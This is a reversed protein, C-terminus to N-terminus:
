AGWGIADLVRYLVGGVFFAIPFVTATTAVAIRTGRERAIMLVSAVCPIFLTITVMSVVVQQATLLGDAHMVFLGTAGFDRRLFGLVFAASAAAPLGLWGTVLPEGADIIADLGGVRDLVFLVATGLVFLPIVERLYWELRTLTKTLVNSMVPVRLPPMEIMLTSREGPMLRAAIAGVAILVGLVVSIWILGATFSVAGLMGLIVGLQASCPVALALLLIALARERKSDLIRTTLTAMTVCGLGLVMPLVAKGNLGMVTFLRNSVVAMRSLYGSDELVSFALFFTTVIPLILALAYTMGMTWLGYEGVLLDSILSVPVIAEVQEVIWPNLIEGFLNEEILGVLTGAGFVGVFWYMSYLVAALVPWGLLRHTTMMTLTRLVRSSRAARSSILSPAVSDVWALRTNQVAASVPEDLDSALGDRIQDLRDRDGPEVRDAIWNVASEDGALWLIALSRASNTSQPLMPACASIATEIPRPYTIVPEPATAAALMAPLREVGRGRTAVTPQVSIGTLEALLVADIDVGAAEAEDQLNLALVMPRGLEALQATLLLTRRINKADGVQLIAKPPDDLLVRVTVAEDESRAPISVVGPTDVVSLGALEGDRATGRTLDVTTGAFNSVTVYRGTLRQFLVSKGVNPNGVLVM